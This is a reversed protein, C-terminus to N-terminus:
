QVHGTGSDVAAGGLFARDFNNNFIASAVVVLETSDRASFPSWTIQARLGACGYDRISRGVVSSYGQPRALAARYDCVVVFYALHPIVKHLFSHLSVFGVAYESIPM